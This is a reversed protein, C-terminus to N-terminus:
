GSGVATVAAVGNGGVTYGSGNIAITGADLNVFPALIPPRDLVVDDQPM